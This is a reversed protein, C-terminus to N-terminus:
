TTRWSGRTAGPAVLGQSAVRKLATQVKNYDPSPSGNERPASGLHRTFEAITCPEVEKLRNVIYAAEDEPYRPLVGRMEVTTTKKKTTTM